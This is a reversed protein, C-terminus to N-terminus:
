KERENMRRLEDRRIAEDSCGKSCVGFGCTGTVADNKGCIDCPPNPPDPYQQEPQSNQQCMCDYCMGWDPDGEPWIKNGCSCVAKTWGEQLWWFSM